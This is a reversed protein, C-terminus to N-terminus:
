CIGSICKERVDCKNGCTGCNNTDNNLNVEIGRCCNDLECTEWSACVGNGCRTCNGQVCVEPLHCIHYCSGCHTNDSSLNVKKGDCYGKKPTSEVETIPIPTIVPEPPTYILKFRVKDGGAAEGAENELVEIIQIKLFSYIDYEDGEGLNPTVKGDATLIATEQGAMGGIYDAYVEYTQGGITYTRSDHEELVGYVTESASVSNVFILLFILLILIKKM